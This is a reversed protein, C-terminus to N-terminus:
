QSARRGPPGSGPRGSAALQPLKSPLVPASQSPVLGPSPPQMTPAPQLKSASATDTSVFAAARAEYVLKAYQNIDPRAFYEGAMIQKISLGREPRLTFADFRPRTMNPDKPRPLQMMRGSGDGIPVQKIVYGYGTIKCRRAVPPGRTYYTHPPFNMRHNLPPPVIPPPHRTVPAEVWHTATSGDPRKPWTLNAMARPTDSFVGAIQM